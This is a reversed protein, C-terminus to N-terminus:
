PKVEGDDALLDAIGSRQCNDHILEAVYTSVSQGKRAAAMWAM